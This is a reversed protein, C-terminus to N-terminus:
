RLKGNRLPQSYDLPFNKLFCFLFRNTFVIVESFKDLTFLIRELFDEKLM